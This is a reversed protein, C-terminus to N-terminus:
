STDVFGHHSTWLRMLVRMPAGCTPCRAPRPPSPPRPPPPGEGPHGQVILLRITTLPVACSAQLFGCHRVKM